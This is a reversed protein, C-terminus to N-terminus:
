RACRFGVSDVAYFPQANGTIALPGAYTGFNFHGGRLLAGPGGTTSSEVGFLCQQDDSFGGWGPCPVPAQLSLPVWDAVWELLNGVMDFAGFASVCSGRSGTALVALTSATNCDSTGNDPGPDPTGTVAVQWEANTPLRKLSNACAGLAQFWTLYAAPTVGPLSVAFIDGKCNQGNDDCPAYDDTATGLQTAGATTLDNLTVTGKQIKRVLAAGTGEPDTVRWVSGEYKDICVTGAPTSDAPCRTVPKPAAAWVAGALLVVAAVIGGHGFVRNANRM